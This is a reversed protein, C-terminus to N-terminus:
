DKSATADHEVRENDKVQGPEPDAADAPAEASEGTAAAGAQAALFEEETVTRFGKGETAPLVFEQPGKRLLFFALAGIFVIISTWVNLRLGGIIQADDTRMAEIWARGATYAMVYLAFARGKGLKFKRDAWFVLGAVGVNWLLEYLFTPHYTGELLLPEGDPGTLAQGVDPDGPAGTSMQHVQLGWPLTTPGGHLENNFWNGLRGVAQALPLGVAITDAAFSFSLGIQKCAIWAGLAGGAVGGWIGLGGEWIKFANVLGETGHGFYNDPSTLVHYIRAGVIGFPVAWMAIDLITWPPTGRARMRRDTVICAVIIGAIICLAYARLPVPGIHWVATSPSPISALIVPAFV